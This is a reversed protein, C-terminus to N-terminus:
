QQVPGVLRNSEKCGGGAGERGEEGTEVLSVQELEVQYYCLHPLLPPPLPLFSPSNLCAPDADRWWYQCLYYPMRVNM